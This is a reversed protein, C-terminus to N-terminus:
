AFIISPIIKTEIWHMIDEKSYSDLLCHDLSIFNYARNPMIDYVKSEVLQTILYKYDKAYSPKSHHSSKKSGSAKEFVNCVDHVVGIAKAARAITPPQVNSGMRQIVNKVRRNLHEMHLDCAINCGQRGQTNIFRSNRIQAAKRESFLCHYQILMIAAEKAYNTRNTKKFVLLLYKWITMIRRGDGERTADLYNYWLLGLSIVESAYIHVEDSAASPMCTDKSLIRVYRKVIEDALQMLTGDWGSNLIQQAAAVIHSDLVLKLFDEM